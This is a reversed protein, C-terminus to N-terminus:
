TFFRDAQSGKLVLFAKRGAIMGVHIKNRSSRQVKDLPIEKRRVAPQVLQTASTPSM